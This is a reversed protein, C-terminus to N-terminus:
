TVENMNGRKLIWRCKAPREWSFIHNGFPENQRFCGLVSHRVGQFPSKSPIRRFSSRFNIETFKAFLEWLTPYLFIICYTTKRYAAWSRNWTQNWRSVPHTVFCLCGLFIHLLFALDHLSGVLSVGPDKRGPPDALSSTPHQHVHNKALWPDQLPNARVM